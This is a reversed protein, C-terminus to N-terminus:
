SLTEESSVLRRSENPTLSPRFHIHSELDAYVDHGHRAFADFYGTYWQNMIIGNNFSEQLDEADNIGGCRIVHFEESPSLRGLISVALASLKLSDGNVIRGSLGGGFTTTFRDYLTREFVHISSRKQAYHTSTNGLIVGDFRLTILIHLLEELQEHNTDVSFKVIVPLSRQRLRLFHTSVYELRRILSDDLGSGQHDSSVNPCSENLELFDVNARDYDQMGAVLERLADSEVLEPQSAVSAGIPCGAVKEIRSLRSAVMAHGENPLGMWNSAAGSRPYAVTPWLIGKGINGSRARSTTTGAVYAGAGQASVVEYGEGKKFMGAANWIPMKFHLGWATIGPYEITRPLPRELAFRNLFQTRGYSFIRTALMPPMGTILPRLAHEVRAVSELLSMLEFNAYKSTHVRLFLDCAVPQWAISASLDILKTVIDQEGIEVRCYLRECFLEIDRDLSDVTGHLRCRVAAAQRDDLIADSRRVGSEDHVQEHCAHRFTNEEKALAAAEFLGGVDSM